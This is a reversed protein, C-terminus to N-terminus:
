TIRIIRQGAYVHGFMDTTRIHILYTGPEPNAPLNAKWLHGCASPEPLKRGPPPNDSSEADKLLKYIPDASEIRKMKMWENEEGFMMEVVSRESGAFVNVFIETEGAAGAMVEEPACINMRYSEPRRAVKYEMSYDNGDIDLFLYGNPTGDSMMANPIGYEDPAGSWWSGCVTGVVLHHHQEPGHWGSLGRFFIHRQQHWHGALSLTHPYEDIIEFLKRYDTTKILPIHMMVVILKDKPVFQLDNAIFQLQAKGIEGHYGSGDWHINDLVIFHARGYNYSYCPPGFIREFTEVSHENDPSDQNTDHNGPVNYWPIGIRAITDVLPDFVSLDNFVIDGLSVGFEADVGILEEVVDHAVYEVERVDRPQPDGFVVIRYEDPEEERYLPFDVSPPLPGTPSVGPYKSDPSGLPKHIYYFSPLNNDNVPTKWDEPKIVFIISDDDIPLEYMGDEGTMAVDLGNSVCVGAIGGEGDDFINNGNADNFVIGKVYGTDNSADACAAALLLSLVIIFISTAFKRM